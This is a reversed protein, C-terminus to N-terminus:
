LLVMYVWESNSRSSPYTLIRPDKKERRSVVLLQRYSLLHIGLYQNSICTQVM